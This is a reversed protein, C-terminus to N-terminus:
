REGAYDPVQKNETETVLDKQVLALKFMTPVRRDYCGQHQICQLIKLFEPNERPILSASTITRTKENTTNNAIKKLSSHYTRIASTSAQQGTPNPEEQM